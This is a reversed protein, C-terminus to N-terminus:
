AALGAAAALDGALPALSSPDDPPTWLFPLRVATSGVAGRLTQVQSEAERRREVLFRAAVLWPHTQATEGLGELLEVDTPPFRRAPMANVIPPAVPLRERGALEEYLEITERVALEEPTTVLLVLTTGGDALMAALTELLDAIPGLRALAGLTRPASLLPLSHGSAPADVIVLDHVPRGLRRAGLWGHVKNLVLFEALGPAAAALIQFSTSGLLRRSLLRFRLVGEVFDALADEPEIRAASLAPAVRAPEAGLTRAGLLPALRGAGVEVALTKRGAAAAARALAAAVTTKGVGGKGTVIVLRQSGLSLRAAVGPSM